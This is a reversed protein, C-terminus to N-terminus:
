GGQRSPEHGEAKERFSAIAKGQDNFIEFVTSLRTIQLVDHVRRTLRYLKLAANERQASSYARVLAGIGSSDIYNVEGLDLLIQTVGRKLLEQMKSDLLETDSGAVLTGKLHLLTVSEVQSDSIGLPM